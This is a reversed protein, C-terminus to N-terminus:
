YANDQAPQLHRLIQFASACEIDLNIFSTQLMDTNSNKDIAIKYESDEEKQWKSCGGKVEKAQGKQGENQM